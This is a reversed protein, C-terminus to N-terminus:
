FTFNFTVGLSRTPPTQGTTNIGTANGTTNAFEPDTYQNSSPVWLAVNRAIFSASIAKFLKQKALLSQPFTYSLAVERLKWFDASTYYASEVSNFISGTYLNANGSRTYINTNPTFTSGTRTVSNPWVFPQRDYEVTSAAIGNFVLDQGIDNYIFNGGRYEFLVSLALDGYSISPTLGIIHKPLTQGYTKRAGALSPTGTNADVIVRGQPERNYDLLNLLYAPEGKKVVVLGGNGISLQDLGEYVKTVKNQQFTYNGKFDIKLKGLDLLPTLSLETEIGENVFAAANVLSSTYGTSAPLSIGIIQNTNDQRYANVELRVKNKFMALEFGIEKSVIFEPKINPDKLQDDISYGPLNGYPFSGVSFSNNLQYAGLNVNGSKAYSGKLKLSSITNGKLTPILESIMVSTNVGPYFFSNAKVPLRSDWDNRGSLTVFVKNDYGITAQGIASVTRVQNLGQSVGPEGTRNSINFLTPIVLNSGSNGISNTQRSLISNGVLGDISFKKINKKFNLFLESSVRVGTSSFDNVSAKTSQGWPSPKYSATFPTVFTAGLQSRSNSISLTTGLRYTLSFVPSLKYNLDTSAIVRHTKGTSRDIDILMYPNYGFFNYYGDATAYPNDRWNKLSTLPVNGATKIVSTYIDDFGGRGQNVVSYNQVIYNVNFGVSLKNFDRSANLRFSTRRNKDKPMIGTIVADQASLLFRSKEDGGSVSIDTQLTVGTNFFNFRENPLNVYPVMFQQGNELPHGLPVMSGDYRPGFSNNTFYDYIPLGNADETEGPGFENQLKPFYAIKDFQATTSFNITPKSRNGKKTTIVIAGNAGDQGYLIAAANSKLVSVDQVDNPSISSILDLSVPIGDIVLLPQNNGTLSRVGRLTIRTDAFVGSNVSQVNLGAVRGTLGQQVNVAKVKTLDEAGITTIATGVSKANIKRNLAGTVVVEKIDGKTSRELTTFLSTQNEVAVDVPTFGSSSITLVDGAKVKLSYQGNDDASVGNPSGKIKVSAFPVARGDKDTIKGTVVRSQSFALLSCLMLMTFLSLFRRM